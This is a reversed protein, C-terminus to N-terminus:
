IKKGAQDFSKLFKVTEDFVLRAIGVREDAAGYSVILEDDLKLMGTVFIVPTKFRGPMEWDEVPFLVRGSCRHKVKPLGTSTDIVMFSQTYGFKADKKAHYSLLWENEDLKVLPGSAGIRNAEWDFQPMALVDRKDTRYLEEFSSASAIIISPDIEEKIAQYLSPKWPRHLQLIQPKGDINIREPFIVVDRDEGYQPDTLHCVYHFANKYDQNSLAQLDVQFLVNVTVNKSAALGYPQTDEFIWDPCCQTPEDNIWYPGPPFMRCAVTMYCSDEFFFLRPDEICGNAYNTVQQGKLNTISIESQDYDLAPALAPKNLDFEWTHGQDDSWGYGLFIPYPDPKGPLSKQSCPGTARFLIHLRSAKQDYIIAPNLVMESAWYSGPQPALLLKRSKIFGHAM